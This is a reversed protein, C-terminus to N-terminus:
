GYEHVAQQPDCLIKNSGLLGIVMKEEAFSAYVELINDLFLAAINGDHHFIPWILEHYTDQYEWYKTLIDAFNYKSAIYLM